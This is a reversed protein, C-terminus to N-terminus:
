RDNAVESRNQPDKATATIAHQQTTRQDSSAETNRALRPVDPGLLSDTVRASPRDRSFSLSSAGALDTKESSTQLRLCPPFVLSGM